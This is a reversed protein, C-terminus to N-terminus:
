SRGNDLKEALHSVDKALGEVRLETLALRTVMSDIQNRSGRIDAVIEEMKGTLSEMKAALASFRWVVVAVASIITITMGIATLFLGASPFSIVGDM